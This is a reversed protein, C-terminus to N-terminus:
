MAPNFTCIAGCFTTDYGDSRAQLHWWGYGNFVNCGGVSNFDARQLFCMGAQQSILYSSQWSSSTTNAYFWQWTGGQLDKTAAGDVPHQKASHAVTESRGMPALLSLMLVTLTWVFTISM